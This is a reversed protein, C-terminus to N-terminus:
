QDLRNGYGAIFSAVGMDSKGLPKLRDICLYGRGCFISILKHDKDIDISGPTGDSPVSHAKTIVVDIGALNTHSQPWLAYARIERELQVASKNWDIEGQKKSMLNDYTAVARDQPKPALSDDIIKPLVEIVMQSGLGLLRDTLGQKTETGTLEIRQQTYIPGADMDKVLKMISVGTTKDGNLIVSEIPTPGRHLPLLSPHINIIGKPFIDIVSQPIIKGYAALVGVDANYAKLQESIDNVSKPLLLPIGHKEAVKQIELERSQRSTGISYNSVVAAINYGGNILARLTPASTTVGTALRENGFFVATVSTKKM